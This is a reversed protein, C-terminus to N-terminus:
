KLQPGSLRELTALPQGWGGVGDHVYHLCEVFGGHDVRGKHEQLM